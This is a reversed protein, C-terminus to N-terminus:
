RPKPALAPLCRGRAQARRRGWCRAGPRYAINYGFEGAFRIDLASVDRIGRVYLSSFSYDIGFGPLDSHLYAQPGHRHRRHGSLPDAEAYGLDHAQQSPQRLIWAGATMEWLIYNSTGNLIGILSTIRNGSM